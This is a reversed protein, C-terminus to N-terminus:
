EASRGLKSRKCSIIGDQYVFCLMESIQAALRTSLPCAQSTLMRWGLPIASGLSAVREAFAAYVVSLSEDDAHWLRATPLCRQDNHQMHEQGAAQVGAAVRERFMIGYWFAHILAQRARTTLRM